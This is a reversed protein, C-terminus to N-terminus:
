QFVVKNRGSQKAQYLAHDAIKISDDLTLNKVITGGISITFAIDINKQNAIAERLQNAKKAAIEQNDIKLILVFEEGGWRYLQETSRINNKIIAATQIIVQDGVDHGHIDNISKFHDIDFILVTRGSLLKKKYQKEGYDRRYCKTMSDIQILNIVTSFLKIITFIAMTSILSIFASLLALYKYNIYLYIKEPSTTTVLNLAPFQYGLDPKKTSLLTFQEHNFDQIWNTYITGKVDFIILAAIKQDVYIPMFISRIEKNSFQEKKIHTLGIAPSKFYPEYNNPINNDIILKQVLNKNSENFDKIHPVRLPSAYLVYADSNDIVALTWYDENVLNKLNISLQHIKSSFYKIEKASPTIIGIHDIHHIGKDTFVVKSNSYYQTFSHLQDYIHYVKSRMYLSVQKQKINNYEFLMISSSLFVIIFLVFYKILTSNNKLHKM